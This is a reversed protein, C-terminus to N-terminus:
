SRFYQGEIKKKRLLFRRFDALLFHSFLAFLSVFFFILQLELSLSIKQEIRQRCRLLKGLSSLSPPFLPLHFQSANEIERQGSTSIEDEEIRETHPCFIHAEATRIHATKLRRTSMSSCLLRFRKKDRIFKMNKTLFGEYITQPVTFLLLLM